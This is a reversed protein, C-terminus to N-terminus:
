SAYTQLVAPSAPVSEPNLNIVRIKVRNPLGNQFRFAVKIIRQPQARQSPSGFFLFGHFRERCGECRYPRLMFASGLSDWFGVIRSPRVKMAGCSYCEPIKHSRLLVVILFPLAIAAMLAVGLEAFFRVYEM